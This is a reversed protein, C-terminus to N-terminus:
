IEEVVKTIQRYREEVQKFFTKVNDLSEKDLATRIKAEVIPMLIKHVLNRFATYILNKEEDSIMSLRSTLKHASHKAIGEAETILSSIVDRIFTKALSAIFTELEKDIFKSIAEYEFNGGKRQSYLNIDNFDLVMDNIKAIAPPISIDVVYYRRNEVGKLIEEVANVYEGYNSIAIVVGDVHKLAESFRDISLIHCSEGCDRAVNLAKDMASAYVMINAKSYLKVLYKIARRIAHGSGVLLISKHNLDGLLDALIDVALQPYGKGEFGFQIRVKRGVDIAKLFIQELVHNLCGNSRSTNLAYEIQELIEWEGKIQSHLGSAVEFLYRIGEVGRFIRVYGRYDNFLELLKADDFCNFDNYVYVEFRLCTSLVVIGCCFAKYFEDVKKRLSSVVDIPANKYSLSYVRFDSIVIPCVM